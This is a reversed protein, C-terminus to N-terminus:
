NRSYTKQVSAIGTLWYYRNGGPSTLSLDWSYDKPTLAVSTSAPMTLSFEGNIANTLTPTFTAAITTSNAQVIDADVIYGTLDLPTSVYFTGVASGSVSISSGGSTASVQFSGTTLGASIVYYVDNIELGCPVTTGGTFVVKDGAQFGHCDCNFTPTGGDITIGSLQQRNQTARFSGNWTSNQLIAINYTAPYIM